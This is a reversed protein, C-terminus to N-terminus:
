AGAAGFFFKVMGFFHHCCELSFYGFPFLLVVVQWRMHVSVLGLGAMLGIERAVLAASCTLFETFAGRLGAARFRIPKDKCSWDDHLVPTRM